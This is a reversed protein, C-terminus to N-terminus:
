WVNLLDFVLIFCFCSNRLLTYKVMEEDLLLLIWVHPVFSNYYIDGILVSTCRLLLSSVLWFMVFPEFGEQVSNQISGQLKIEVDEVSPPNVTFPEFPASVFRCWSHCELLCSIVTPQSCADHKVKYVDGSKMPLCSSKMLPRRRCHSYCQNHQWPSSYLMFVFWVHM